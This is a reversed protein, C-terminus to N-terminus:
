EKTPPQHNNPLTFYLEACCRVDYMASHAAIPDWPKKVLTTYAEQLTPWKFLGARYPSPIKCLPTSTLMTCYNEKGAILEMGYAQTGDPLKAKLIESRLMFLDFGLNHAVLRDTRDLMFKFLGLMTKAQLGYTRARDTTIGHIATAELPIDMGPDVLVNIEMLLELEDYLIAGLQVVRPQHAAGPGSKFDAKGTTETDFFLHRM